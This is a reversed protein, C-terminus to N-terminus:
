ALVSGGEIIPCGMYGIIAHEAPAVRNLTDHTAKLGGRVCRAGQKM